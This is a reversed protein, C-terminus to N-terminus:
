RVSVFGTPRGKLRKSMMRFAAQIASAPSEELGPMCFKMWLLVLPDMVVLKGLQQAGDVRLETDLLNAVALGRDDSFAQAITAAHAQEATWPQPPLIAAIGDSVVAYELGFRDRSPVCTLLVHFRCCRNLVAKMLSVTSTAVPHEM